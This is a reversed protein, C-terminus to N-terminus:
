KHMLITIVEKIIIGGIAIWLAFINKKTNKREVSEQNLRDLEVVIGSKRDSGYLLNKLESEVKGIDQYIRVNTRSRTDKESEADAVLRNMQIKLSNLEQFIDNIKSQVENFNM